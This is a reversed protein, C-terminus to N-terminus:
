TSFKCNIKIPTPVFLRYNKLNYKMDRTNFNKDLFSELNVIYNTM